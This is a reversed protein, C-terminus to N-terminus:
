VKKERALVYRCALLKYRAMIERPEGTKLDYLVSSRTRPEGSLEPRRGFFQPATFDIESGNPLVNWYHSSMHAFEPFEELSARLLNGGFIDQALLSVVACHAHLPNKKSWSKADASTEQDCIKCLVACFEEPSISASM